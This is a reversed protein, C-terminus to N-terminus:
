RHACGGRTMAVFINSYLYINAAAAVIRGHPFLSIAFDHHCQNSIETTLVALRASEQLARRGSLGLLLFQLKVVRWMKDDNEVHDRLNYLGQFIGGEM